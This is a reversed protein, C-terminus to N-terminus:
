KETLVLNRDGYADDIRSVPINFKNDKIYSLPFYAQEKSYLYKWHEYLLNISHPSNVLVNNELNEINEIEQKIAVLAEIFRDLEDLNESETPEIMLSSSVPWSMTPAHFGYDMLRKSIDKETINKNNFENTKIIFEHSVMNEENQFPIKFHPELKQKMYNANLLSMISCERLGDGGIMSIYSYPITLLSASSFPTSAVSGYSKSYQLPIIPNNPLYDMLEKTVCIPGLGPGGGGHPITFTKHLNIHCADIGLDSLKILGMFSNMNAGDCYIKVGHEKVKKIINEISKEFFGFTSPFTVMLCAINTNHKNVIEELHEVNIHGNTKSKIKVVKFGALKASAFNTGHASDPIICIKRDENQDKFYNKIACLASYEGTAGSNSQFSVHPLGTIKGLYDEMRNILEIYGEQYKIPTFPHVNAWNKDFLSSLTNSSNLKMTCSGLPIMSHTLSLDKNQLKTIYRLIKHENNYSNFIQQPLLETKRSDHIYPVTNLFRNELTELTYNINFLDALLEQIHILKKTEDLSITILNEREEFKVLINKNYALEQFRKFIINNSIKIQLTDFVDDINMINASPIKLEDFLINQLLTTLKLIYDANEKLKDPGMFMAYLTNYNALLAQSTCINSLARDKKIHQERSQLALRYCDNNNIDISKGVIRGPINRVNNMSTAYFAAHPGGNWMPLGFRQTSGVVVSAGYTGPPEYITAAYPDFLVVSEINNKNLKTLINELNNITGNKNRHQFLVISYDNFKNNNLLKNIHGIEYEINLFKMRTEAVNLHQEFSNCDLFVKKNKDMKKLSNYLSIISEACASSEDLLSCNAVDMNTLNPILTQYNFLLELRGQSIESQYPIYASYFNPNTLFNNKLCENVHSPYFGNGYYSTFIKNKNSMIDLDKKVDVYEKAPINLSLLKNKKYVSNVFSDINPQDIKKLMTDLRNPVHNRLYTSSRRIFIFFNNM